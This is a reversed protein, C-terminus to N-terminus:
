RFKVILYAPESRSGGAGPHEVVLSYTGPARLLEPPVTVAIETARRFNQPFRAPRFQVEASVPKANVKVIATSLFNRGRITVKIPGEGQMVSDPSVREIEPGPRDPQPRPIPNRYAPNYAPKRAIGEKFVTHIREVAFIDELPNADLIVVDAFRGPAVTGFDMARGECEAPNRTATMLAEMPTLGAEVLIELERHIALGPLISNPDSGTQLRGGVKVFRRLFDKLKGYGNEIREQLASELKATGTFYEKTNASFYPPVYAIRSSALLNIEGDQFRERHKSFARWATALTPTWCVNKAVLAQIVRDYTEEEMFSHVEQSTMRNRASTRGEHLKKRGEASAVTAMAVSHSHEISNIDVGALAAETGNISHVIVPKGADRAEASVARLEETSLNELAKIIDVGAAVAKKTEEKAEELNRVHVETRGRSGEEGGDEGARNLRAALLLRPGVVKGKEIGEKQAFRWPLPNDGIDFATTVGHSLYIEGQWERYHSHADVLGPIAVKDRFNFIKAGKPLALTGRKGVAQIRKGQIVIDADALPEGGSGDILLKVQLVVPPDEAAMVASGLVFLGALLVAVVPYRTTKM